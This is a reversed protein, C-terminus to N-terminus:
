LGNWSFNTEGVWISPSKLRLNCFKEVRTNQAGSIPNGKSNPIPAATLFFIPIPIYAVLIDLFNLSLNLRESVIGAHSPRVSM